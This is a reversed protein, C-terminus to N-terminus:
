IKLYLILWELDLQIDNIHILSHLHFGIKNWSLAM